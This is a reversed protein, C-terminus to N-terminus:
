SGCTQGYPIFQLSCFSRVQYLSNAGNGYQPLRNGALIGAFETDTWNTLANSFTATDTYVGIADLRVESSSKQYILDYSQAQNLLPQFANLGYTLLVVAAVIFRWPTLM